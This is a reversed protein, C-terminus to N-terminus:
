IDLQPKLFDDNLFKKTNKYGNMYLNFILDKSQDINLIEDKYKDDIVM